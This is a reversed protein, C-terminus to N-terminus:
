LSLRRVGAIRDFDRDLSAISHPEGTLALTALYADVFDLRRSGGYLELARSIVAGEHVDLGEATVLEGLRHAVMARRWGFVAEVVYVLEAVVVPTVILRLSGDAVRRFLDLARGHLPHADDAFLAVFLNTDAWARDPRAASV